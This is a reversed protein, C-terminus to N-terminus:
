SPVAAARRSIPGSDTWLQGFAQGFSSWKRNKTIGPFQIARVTEGPPRTMARNGPPAAGSPLRAAGLDLDLRVKRIEARGLSSLRYRNETEVSELIGPRGTGDLSAFRVFAFRRSDRCKLGALTPHAASEAVNEPGM